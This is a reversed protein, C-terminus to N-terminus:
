LIIESDTTGCSEGSGGTPPSDLDSEACSSYGEDKSIADEHKLFGRPVGLRGNPPELKGVGNFARHSRAREKKIRTGAKGEERRESVRGFAVIQACVM